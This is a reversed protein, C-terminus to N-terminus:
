SNITLKQIKSNRQPPRKHPPPAKKMKSERMAGAFALVKPSWSAALIALITISAVQTRPLRTLRTLLLEKSQSLEVM